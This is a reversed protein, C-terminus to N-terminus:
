LTIILVAYGGIIRIWVDNMLKVFEKFGLQAKESEPCNPLM